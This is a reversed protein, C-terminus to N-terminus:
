PAGCRLVSADPAELRLASDPWVEPFPYRGRRFRQEERLRTGSADLWIRHEVVAGNVAGGHLYVHRLRGEGDYYEEYTLAADASGVQRVYKVVRGSADVYIRREADEEPGCAQFPRASEVLAGQRLRSEVRQAVAEAAKVVPDKRSIAAPPPGPLPAPSPAAEVKPPAGEAASQEPPVPAAQRMAARAAGAAAPPPEAAALEQRTAPRAAPAGAAARRRPEPEALAEASAADAAGREVFGIRGSGPAAAPAPAREKAARAAVAPREAAARPARAEAPASTPPPM